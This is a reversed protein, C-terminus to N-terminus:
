TLGTDSQKVATFVTLVGHRPETEVSIHLKLSSNNVRLYISHELYPSILTLPRTYGCINVNGLYNMFRQSHTEYSTYSVLRPRLYLCVLDATCLVCRLGSGGDDDRFNIRIVTNVPFSRM